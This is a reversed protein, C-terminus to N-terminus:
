AFCVLVVEQLCVALVAAQIAIGGPSRGLRTAPGHQGALAHRLYDPDVLAGHGSLQHQHPSHNM